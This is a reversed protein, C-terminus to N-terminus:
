QTGPMPNPVLFPTVLGETSIYEDFVLLSLHVISVTVLVTFASRTTSRSHVTLPNSRPLCLKRSSPAVPSFWFGHYSSISPQGRCLSSCTCPGWLLLLLSLTHIWLLFCHGAHGLEWLNPMLFLAVNQLVKLTLSAKIAKWGLLFPFSLINWHSSPPSAAVLNRKSFSWEPQLTFFPSSVVRFLNWTVLSKNMPFQCVTSIVLARTLCDGYLAHVRGLSELHAGGQYLLSRKVNGRHWVCVSVWVYILM